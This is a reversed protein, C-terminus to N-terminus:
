HGGSHESPYDIESLSMSYHGQQFVFRGGLEVFDRRQQAARLLTSTYFRDEFERGRFRLFHDGDFLLGEFVTAQYIERRLHKKASFGPPSWEGTRIVLGNIM